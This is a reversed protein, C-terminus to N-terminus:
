LVIWTYRESDALVKLSCGAPLPCSAAMSRSPGPQPRPRGRGQNPKPGLTGSPLSGISSLQPGRAQVWGTFSQQLFSLGLSPPPTRELRAGM